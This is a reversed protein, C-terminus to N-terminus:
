FVCSKRQELLEKVTEFVMDVTIREMCEMQREARCIRSKCPVCALGTAQIVRNDAGVPGTREPDAAGFLAIVPTRVATAMHMPGTDGSILLAAKELVAGLQLLTTSGTLVLPHSSSLRGIEHALATDGGGGVIIVSVQLEASIRDALAAFQTPSWRNVPHSAGPNLAIVHQKLGYSEFLEAAYSRHENDLYLELEGGDQSVGLAEVTKLHDQVAHVVKAHTKHYVLIRCPFAATTLFWTKLNSRQFNIVLEYSSGRIRQWLSFLAGFSRHEGRQDYVLIDAINPNHHFLDTSATNGVMIDIRASPFRSHLARITPTLQLLDGMAGPKIILIRQSKQNVCDKDSITPM